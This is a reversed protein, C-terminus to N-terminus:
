WKNACSPARIAVHSLHHDGLSVLITCFRGNLGTMLPTESGPTACSFALLIEANIGGRNRNIQFLKATVEAMFRRATAIRRNCRVSTHLSDYGSIQTPMM